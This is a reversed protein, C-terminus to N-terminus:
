RATGCSSDYPSMSPWESREQDMDNIIEEIQEARRQVRDM